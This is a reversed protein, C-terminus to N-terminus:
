DLSSTAFYFIKQYKFFTDHPNKKRLYEKEENKSFNENQNKKFKSFDIKSEFSNVFIPNEKKESLSL